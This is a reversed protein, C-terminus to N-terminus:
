NTKLTPLNKKPLIDALAQNRNNSFWQFLKSESGAPQQSTHPFTVPVKDQLSDPNGVIQLLAKTPADILSEDKTYESWPLIGQILCAKEHHYRNPWLCTSSCQASYVSHYRKARLNESQYRAQRNILFLGEKEVKVCGLGLSKGLGLRHQFHNDDGPSLATLLLGLEAPHLNEFDIHFYFVSDKPIPQVWVKQNTDQEKHSTSYTDITSPKRPLYVKRGSPRHQKKNLDPKDIFTRGSHNKNQFYMNSSPPKPSALIKLLTTKELCIKQDSVADYFRVRSSLAFADTDLEQEPDTNAVAGLLAEAPTITSRSTSLPLTNEGIKKFFDYTSDPLSIRGNRTSISYATDDLVRLASQSLTEILSGIVGRLSNAPIAPKNNRLYPSVKAPKQEDKKEQEAGVVTPTQLTLQCILRGSHTGKSWLDHRIYAHQGQTIADCSDTSTNKGNVQSTVPIFQYPNYFEPM